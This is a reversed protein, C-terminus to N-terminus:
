ARDPALEILIEADHTKIGRDGRMGQTVRKCGVEELVTRIEARDLFQETVM